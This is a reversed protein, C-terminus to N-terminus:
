QKLIPLEENSPLSCDRRSRHLFSVLQRNKKRHYARKDIIEGGEKEIKKKEVFIYFWKLFEFNILIKLKAM